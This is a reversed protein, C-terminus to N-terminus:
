LSEVLDRVSRQRIGPDLIDIPEVLGSLVEEIGNAAERSLAEVSIDDATGGLFKINLHTRQSEHEFLARMLRDKQSM